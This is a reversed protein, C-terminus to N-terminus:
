ASIAQNKKHRIIIETFRNLRIHYEEGLYM